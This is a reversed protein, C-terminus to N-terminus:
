WKKERKDVGKKLNKEIKKLKKAAKLNYHKKVFVSVIYQKYQRFFNFFVAFSIRQRIKYVIIKYVIYIYIIKKELLLRVTTKCM